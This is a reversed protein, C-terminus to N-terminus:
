KFIIGKLQSCLRIDCCGMSKLKNRRLIRWTQWVGLTLFDLTPAEQCSEHPLSSHSDCHSLHANILNVLPRYLCEFYFTVLNVDPREPLLYAFNENGNEESEKEGSDDCM